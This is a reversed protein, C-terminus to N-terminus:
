GRRECLADLLAHHGLKGLQAVQQLYPITLLDHDTLIALLYPWFYPWYTHGTLTALLYPWHPLSPEADGYVTRM